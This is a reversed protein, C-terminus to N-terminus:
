ECGLDIRSQLDNNPFCNGSPVEEPAYRTLDPDYLGTELFQVLDTIDNEDLPVPNFKESLKTVNPNESEALVKYEVVARLGVKSSGHFYFPTGVMNYVGPVKFKYDDEPDLTFAGRGRNRRDNPDPTYSNRDSMDKVGLAHFESSGLNKEYHCQYCQAKGFFLIAGRKESATMAAYDGKLWKQFPAKNSIITRIYASYALSATETTYREEEPIDSFAMDFMPTYGYEDLIDKTIEIRHTHLGEMNQTEIGEFGLDNLAVAESQGPAHWLHETGANVGTAGFQGNWFTNTVFGVNVLSLPRAAQVDLMSDDYNNNRTRDEGNVGFGIGGDAIGQFYGPRFGAEPIHCSACSYTGLGSPHKPNTGLGTDYFMLKGLDVKARTLPNKPDQPVNALDDEDPLIYFSKGGVASEVSEINTTLQKDLEVTSNTKDQTCSATLILISLIFLTEKMLTRVTIAAFIILM